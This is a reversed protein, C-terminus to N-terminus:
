DPKLVVDMESFGASELANKITQYTGFAAKADHFVQPSAGPWKQKVIALKKNLELLTVPQENLSISNDAHVRIVIPSQHTQLKDTGLPPGKALEIKDTQLIPAVVIFMILIVFVVDILPTLNVQVDEHQSLKRRAKM